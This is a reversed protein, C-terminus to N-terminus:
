LMLKSRKGLKFTNQVVSLHIAVHESLIHDFQWDTFFLVLVIRLMAILNTPVTGNIKFVSINGRGLQELTHGNYPSFTLQHINDQIEGASSDGIPTYIDVYVALYTGDLQTFTYVRLVVQNYYRLGCIM